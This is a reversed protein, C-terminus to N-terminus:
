SLATTAEWALRARLGPVGSALAAQRAERSLSRCQGLDLDTLLPLKGKGPLILARVGEASISTCNVGLERLKGCAGLMALGADTLPPADRGWGGSSASFNLRKLTLSWRASVVAAAADTAAKSYELHLGELVCTELRALGAATVLTGGIALERLGLAGRCLRLLAEDDVGSRQMHCGTETFRRSSGVMLTRLAPWGPAEGSPAKSLEWGASPNLAALKLTQLLPCHQQLAELPLQLLTPSAGSANLDLCTLSPLHFLARLVAANVRATNALSLACLQAGCARLVSVLGDAKLTSRELSLSRLAGQAELLAVLSPPTFGTCGSVDLELLRTCRALAALQRASLAHDRLSLQETRDLAGRAALRAVVADTLRVWGFSLDARKYLEPECSLVASRWARSVCAASAATPLAGDRCALTLILCLVDQPLRASFDEGEATAEGFM